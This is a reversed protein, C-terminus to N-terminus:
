AVIALANHADQLFLYTGDAGLMRTVQGAHELPVAFMEEVTEAPIGGLLYIKARSAASAWLFAAATNPPGHKRLLTLAQEPTEAQRLLEDAPGLKPSATSLVIIRGDPRVVRAACALARALDSFEHRVPDGAIAAVVTAAPEKVTLKWRADLLRQGESSTDAPGGVVHVMDDASGPIIQLFFPAGLLWAAEIAEQRVPWPVAAPADITLQTALEQLTPEDSLAPYLSGEAGSYGLLPDYGRGSLVVLQDADVATRNLYLRRGRRMTALYALQKRNSPDHM